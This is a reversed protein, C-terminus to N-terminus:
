RATTLPGILDLYVDQSTDTGTTLIDLTPPLDHEIYGWVGANGLRLRPCNAYDVRTAAPVGPRFPNGPIVLRGAVATASVVRMGVIAYRGPALSQQPTLACNTWQMSTVSTAGTLRLTLAPLGAPVPDIKDMLWVLGIQTAAGAAEEAAQFNLIDRGQLPVPRDFFDMWQVVTSTITRHIPAVDINLQKRLVPSILRAQTVNAGYAMIAAINPLEPPVIIDDGSVRVHPDALASINSLTPNDTYEGFAVLTIM